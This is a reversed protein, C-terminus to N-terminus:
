KESPRAGTKARQPKQVQRSASHRSAQCARRQQPQTGEPPRSGLVHCPFSHGSRGGGMRVNTGVWAGHEAGQRTSDETSLAPVRDPQQGCLRCRQSGCQAKHQNSQCCGEYHSPSLPPPVYYFTTRDDWCPLITVMSPTTMRQGARERMTVTSPTTRTKGGSSIIQLSSILTWIQTRSSSSGCPAECHVPATDLHHVAGM